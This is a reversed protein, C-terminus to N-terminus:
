AASKQHGLVHKWRAGQDSWDDVVVHSLEASFWHCKIDVVIGSTHASSQEFSITCSSRTLPSHLFSFHVYRAGDLTPRLHRFSRSSKLQLMKLSGNSVAVNTSKKSHWNDVLTVLQIDESQLSEHTSTIETNQISGFKLSVCTTRCDAYPCKCSVAWLLSISLLLKTSQNFTM